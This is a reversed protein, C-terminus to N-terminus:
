PEGQHAYLQGDAIALEADRILGNREWRDLQRRIVPAAQAVTMGSRLRPSYLLKLLVYDLGTLLEDDTIDSFVTPYYRKSDNILGLMQTMEEVVCPILKGENQAREVPIVVTGSTIEARRNFRINGLCVTNDFERAAVTSMERAVIEPADKESAFFVRVNAQERSDVFDVPLGTINGIQTFHMAIVWRQQEADGATSSVWIRLPRNWKRVVPRVREYEGRLAIDYFSDEIYRKNQWHQPEPEPKAMAAGCVLIGLLAAVVGYGLRLGRRYRKTKNYELMSGWTVLNLRILSSAVREPALDIVYACPLVVYM